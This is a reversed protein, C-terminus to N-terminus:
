IHTLLIRFINVSGTWLKIVGEAGLFTADSLMLLLCSSFNLFFDREQYINSKDEKARPECKDNRAKVDDFENTLM